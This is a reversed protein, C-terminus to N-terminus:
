RADRAHPEAGPGVRIEGVVHAPLRALEDYTAPKHVM